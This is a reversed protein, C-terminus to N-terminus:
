SSLGLLLLATVFPLAALLGVACGLAAAFAALGAVLPAESLLAATAGFALAAALFAAAEMLLAAVFLVAPLADEVLRLLSTADSSPLGLSGGAMLSAGLGAVVPMGVTGAMM